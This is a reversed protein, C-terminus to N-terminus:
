SRRRDRLDRFSSRLDRRRQGVPAEIQERADAAEVGALKIALLHDDCRRRGPAAPQDCGGAVCRRLKALRWYRRRHSKRDVNRGKATRKYKTTADVAALAHAQCLRGDREELPRGCRLCLRNAIRHARHAALDFAM